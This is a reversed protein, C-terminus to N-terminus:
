NWRKYESPIGRPKKQASEIARVVQHSLIEKDVPVIEEIGSIRVGQPVGEQRAVFCLIERNEHWQSVKNLESDWTLRIYAERQKEGYFPKIIELTTSPVVADPSMGRLIKAADNFVEVVGSEKLYKADEDRRKKWAQKNRRETLREEKRRTERQSVKETVLSALSAKERDIM